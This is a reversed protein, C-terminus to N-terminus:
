EPVEIKIIESYNYMQYTDNVRAGVRVWFTYGAKAPVCFKYTTKSYTAGTEDANGDTLDKWAKRVTTVTRKQKNIELNYYADLHNANGCFQNTSLFCRVDLVQPMTEGRDRNVQPIAPACLRCEFRISDAVLEAKFDTIKLYPTVEFDRQVQGGVPVNKLTDVPWWPGEPLMDYTGIFLKKNNYSGDMKIPINQPTPNLSYSREWIRVHAEAHDALINRGTTVDIINGYLHEAPEDFNDITMCSYFSMGTLGCLLLGIIKNKM